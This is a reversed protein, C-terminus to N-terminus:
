LFERPDTLRGAIATAAATAPSTLYIFGKPNGMRGEFNRNQTGVCVEGDALIGQHVGVCPGCGPGTLVGGAELFTRLTGDAMAELFVKKSSLTVILRTEPGVRRGKLFRAAIHLDELRGNTCTGILVQAVNVREVQSIPKVQDVFHPCAVMPELRSLDFQFKREYRADSDPALERYDHERGHERLFLRTLTDSPFLGAKAGCEIAMNSITARAAVSLKELAPGIFELAKYTAGDAGITGIFHLIFDKSYVGPSLAGKLYVEFPEPVRMWTHGFAMAAAIDTSGMGTSFAALAGLTCTHSDAGLILDGPRAFKESVINHSVGEGIDFLVAGTRRCFNRLSQHDNSHELRPSPAAHDLFVACQSPHNLKKIGMAEMQQVTLPATGDHAYTFDVKVMAFEGSKVDHGAHHSLIKEALTKGM